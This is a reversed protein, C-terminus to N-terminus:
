FVNEASVRILRIMQLIEYRLGTLAATYEKEDNSAYAESLRAFADDILDAASRDTMMIVASSGSGWLRCVRKIDDGSVDYLSAPLSDVAALLKSFFGSLWASSSFVYIIMVSLLIASIVLARM